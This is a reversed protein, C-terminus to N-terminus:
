DALRVLVSRPAAHRQELTGGASEILSAQAAIRLGPKFQVILEGPVYDGTGAAVPAGVATAVATCALAALALLM